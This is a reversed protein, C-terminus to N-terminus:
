SRTVRKEPAAVEIGKGVVEGVVLAAVAQGTIDATRESLLPLGDPMITDGTDSLHEVGNQGHEELDDHDYAADWDHEVLDIAFDPDALAGIHGSTMEVVQLGVRELWQDISVEHTADVIPPVASGAVADAGAGLTGTVAGVTVPIIYDRKTRDPIQLGRLKLNKRVIRHNNWKLMFRPVSYFGSILSVGHTPLATVVVAVNGVVAVDRQRRTSRALNLVADDDKEEVERKFKSFPDM